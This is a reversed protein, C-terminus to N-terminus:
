CMEEIRAFKSARLSNMKSKNVPRIKHTRKKTKRQKKLHTFLDEFPFKLHSNQTRKSKSHDIKTPNWKQKVM